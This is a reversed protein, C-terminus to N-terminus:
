LYVLYQLTVKLVQLKNRPVRNSYNRLRHKWGPELRCDLILKLTHIRCTKKGDIKKQDNLVYKVFTAGTVVMPQLM